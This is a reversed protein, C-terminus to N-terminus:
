AARTSPPVMGAPAPLVRPFGWKPTDQALGFAVLLLVTLRMAAGLWALARSARPGYGSLAWYATLLGTRQPPNDAAHRRMEMEGYSFDAAGPERKGDEVAKRLARYVPAM